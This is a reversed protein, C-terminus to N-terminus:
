ALHPLPPVREHQPGANGNLARILQEGKATPACFGLKDMTILNEAQLNDAIQRADAISYDYEDALKNYLSNFHIASMKMVSGTERATLIPGLMRMFFRYVDPIEAVKEKTWTM